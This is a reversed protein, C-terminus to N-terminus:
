FISLADLSRRLKDVSTPPPTAPQNARTPFLRHEVAQAREAAARYEASPPPIRLGAQLCQRIQAIRLAYRPSATTADAWGMPPLNRANRKEDGELLQRQEPTM